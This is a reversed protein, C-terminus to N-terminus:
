VFVFRIHRPTWGSRLSDLEESNCNKLEKRFIYITRIYIINLLSMVISIGILYFDNSTFPILFKFILKIFESFLYVSLFKNKYNLSGYYGSLSMLSLFFYGWNFVIATYIDFITEIASYFRINKSFGILRVKNLISEEDQDYDVTLRTEENM